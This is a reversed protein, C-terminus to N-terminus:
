HVEEDRKPVAHIPCLPNECSEHDDVRVMNAQNLVSQAGRMFSVAQLVVNAQQAITCAADIVDEGEPPNRALAFRAKGVAEEINDLCALADKMPGEGILAELVKAREENKLDAM